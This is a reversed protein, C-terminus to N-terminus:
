IENVLKKKTKKNILFKFGGGYVCMIYVLLHRKDIHIIFTKIKTFNDTQLYLFFLKSFLFFTM